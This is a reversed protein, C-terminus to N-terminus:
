FSFALSSAPSWYLFLLNCFIDYLHSFFNCLFQPPPAKSHSLYILFPPQWYYV